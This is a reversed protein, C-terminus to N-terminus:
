RARFPVARCTPMDTHLYHASRLHWDRPELATDIRGAALLGTGTIRGDSVTISGERLPIRGRLWM